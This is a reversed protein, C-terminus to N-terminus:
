HLKTLDGEYAIKANECNEQMTSSMKELKNCKIITNKAVDQNNKYFNITKAEEEGCGSFNLGVFIIFGLMLIRNM